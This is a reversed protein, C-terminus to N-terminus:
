VAATKHLPDGDQDLDAAFKITWIGLPDTADGPQFTVGKSVVGYKLEAVPKGDVEVIVHELAGYDGVQVHLRGRPIPTVKAEVENPHVGARAFGMGKREGTM